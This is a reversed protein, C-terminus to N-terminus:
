STRGPALASPRSWAGTLRWAAAALVALISGATPVVAWPEAARLDTGIGISHVLATGWAAWSALHVVRWTGHGLRGRLLSTAVVVLMADLAVAGLGLWVPEYRGGVPVFADWWRIDVYGDLVATAVHAALALVSMLALNRHLAQTVFRPVGRGPRGGLSLVGLVVSASLLVLIVIGTGRDLYWLLPGDTM